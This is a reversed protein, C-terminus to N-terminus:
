DLTASLIAMCKRLAPLVEDHAASGKQCQEILWVASLWAALRVLPQLQEISVREFSEAYGDLLALGLAPEMSEFSFTMTAYAVDFWRSDRRCYEYDLVGVVEGGCFLVNGPHYDGHVVGRARADSAVVRASRLLDEFNALAIMVDNPFMGSARRLVALAWEREGGGDEEAFDVGCAAAARHFEGLARGAAWAQERSWGGVTWVFAEDSEIFRYLAYRRGDFEVIDGGTTAPEVQPAYAFGHERLARMFAHERAVREPARLRLEKFCFVGATCTVKWAASAPGSDIPQVAIGTAGYHEAVLAAM